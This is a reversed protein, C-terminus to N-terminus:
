NGDGGGAVAMTNQYASRAAQRAAATARTKLTGTVAPLQPDALGLASLAAAADARLVAVKDGDTFYRSGILNAKALPLLLTEVYAHPVPPEAPTADPCFHLALYAAPVKIVEMEVTYAADPTPRFLIATPTNGRLREVYYARPIGNALTSVGASLFLLPYLDFEGRTALPFLLTGPTATGGATIRLPGLITQVNDPANVSATGATLTIPAKERTFYDEGAMQMTQLARNLADAADQRAALPSSGPAAGLLFLLSTRIAAFSM